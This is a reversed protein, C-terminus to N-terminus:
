RCSLMVVIADDLMILCLRVGDFMMPWKGDVVDASAVPHWFISSMGTLISRQQPEPTTETWSLANIFHNHSLIRTYYSVCVYLIINLKCVHLTM